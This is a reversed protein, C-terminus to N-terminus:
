LNLLSSTTTHLGDLYSFLLEQQVPWVCLYLPGAQTHNTCTLLCSNINHLNSNLCSTINHPYTFLFNHYTPLYVPLSATHTLLCSTINHLFCSTDLLASYRCHVVVPGADPPTSAKVRRIFALLGTAHYPVGHEPWSTFHFQRVEHKASYGRQPFFLDCVHRICSVLVSWLNCMVSVPFLFMLIVSSLFRWCWLWQLCQSDLM